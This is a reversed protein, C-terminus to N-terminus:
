RQPHWRPSSDDLPHFGGNHGQKWRAQMICIARRTLCRVVAVLEKPTELQGWFSVLWFAAGSILDGIPDPFYPFVTVQGM